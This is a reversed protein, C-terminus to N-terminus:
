VHVNVVNGFCCPQCFFLKLFQLFLQLDMSLPALLSPEQKGPLM